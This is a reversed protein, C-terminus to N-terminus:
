DKGCSIGHEALIYGLAARSYDEGYDLKIEGQLELARGLAALESSMPLLKYLSAMYTISRHIDRAFDDLTKTKDIVGPEPRDVGDKECQLHQCLTLLEIGREVHRVYPYIKLPKHGGSPEHGKGYATHGFYFEHRSGDEKEDIVVFTPGGTSQRSVAEEAAGFDKPVIMDIMMRLVARAFDTAAAKADDISLFAVPHAMDLYTLQFTSEDDNGCIMMEKGAFISVETGAPLQYWVFQPRNLPHHPADFTRIPIIKSM